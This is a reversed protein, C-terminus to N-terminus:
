RLAEVNRGREKHLWEFEAPSRYGLTSHSRETNYWGDIAKALGHLAHARSSFREGALIECFLTGFFSRVVSNGWLDTGFQSGPATHRIFSRVPKRARIAVGLSTLILADKRRAGTSWGVIRRSFLDMTVAIYLRGRHYPVHNIGSAWFRNPAHVRHRRANV